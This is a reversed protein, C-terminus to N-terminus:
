LSRKNPNEIQVKVGMSLQDSFILRSQLYHEKLFSLVRVADKKEFLIFIADSGLAGCGKAAMVGPIESLVEILETTTPAELSNQNLFRQWEQLHAIFAPANDTEFAKLINENLTLIQDWNLEKLSDLHDHTKVKHGTLLVAWDLDEFPWLSTQVQDQSLRTQTYGGVMQTLLDVGSPPTKKHQNVKKYEALMEFPSVLQSGLTKQIIFEATSKGMGGFRLYPDYLTGQPKTSSLVGAPSDPHFELTEGGSEFVFSPTVAVSISAGGKLAAYEGSIFFKGPVEIRM